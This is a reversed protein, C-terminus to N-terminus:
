APKLVETYTRGFRDTAVVRIEEATSPVEAYFLHRTPLPDVWPRHEPKDTGRHLQESLPDTGQGQVMEGKRESGAYWVVKWEPDWDWINAVIETPRSPDTGRPYVRLQHDFDHGTSKYRWTIHEGDVEFVGYGNPTGDACIPGSWWAGCTAATVHEHVGGEFVHEHEHTHGSIIHAQYPELIRYLLERNTIASGPSPRDSGNRQFQTSLAPIHNFVVVPRGAEVGALDQRLWQIQTEDLYAIYNNHNWFVDDLVVYHVAGRDFSYYAPGFHRRFTASSTEDTMAEYDMDHNGIVQFFPIGMRSVAREYEPYLELNDFMIDGDAVGFVHRDGLLKVVEQVDPVTQEHFLGMEYDDQTQPDALVLFAHKDDGEDLPTLAFEADMNGDSAPRITQYFRATGTENQPIGYGSPISVYVHSRDTGSILEYTGDAATRVVSRGDTVAIGALGKGAVHVRGRIRIPASARVPRVLPAYPDALIGPILTAAGALSLQKLFQRRDSTFPRSMDSCTHNPPTHPLYMGARNAVVFDSM